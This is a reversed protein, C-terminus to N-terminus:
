PLLEKALHLSQTYLFEETNFSTDKPRIRHALVPCVLTHIDEDTVFTRNKLLALGRAAQLLHLGARPSAGLQLAPHNRTTHVLERVFRLINPDLYVQQVLNRIQVIQDVTCIPRLTALQSAPNDRYVSIEAEENPYGLTLRLMFRDVQALPLPYTGEVDVTNQTALVFFFEPLPHTQLGQTVQGEAMAELLASQVKPTTRNVEDVLLFNTFVPGPSFEFSQTKPNFVDVGTIDYPLLDPTGQIRRFKGTILQALGKALTTKGLGPLDEVLVHGGGFFAALLLTLFQEKGRLISNLAGLLDKGIRTAESFPCEPITSLPTAM